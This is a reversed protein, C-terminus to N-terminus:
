MEDYISDTSRKQGINGDYYINTAEKIEDYCM